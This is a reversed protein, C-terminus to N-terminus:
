PKKPTEVTNQTSAGAATKLSGVEATNKTSAGVATKTSDLVGADSNQIENATDADNATQTSDAGSTAPEQNEEENGKADQRNEAPAEVTGAAGQQKDPVLSASTSTQQLRTGTKSKEFGSSNALEKAYDERFALLIDPIQALAQPNNWEVVCFFVSTTPNSRLMVILDKSKAGTVTVSLTGSTDQAFNVNLVKVYGDVNKQTSPIDVSKEECQTKSQESVTSALKKLWAEYPSLLYKDFKFNKAAAELKAPSVRPISTPLTLDLKLGIEKAQVKVSKTTTVYRTSIKVKSAGNTVNVWKPGPGCGPLVTAAFLVVVCVSATM